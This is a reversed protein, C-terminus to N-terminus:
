EVEFTKLNNGPNFVTGSLIKPNPEPKGSDSFHAAYKKSLLLLLLTRTVCGAPQLPFADFHFIRHVHFFEFVIPQFGM